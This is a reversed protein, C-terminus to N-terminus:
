SNMRWKSGNWNPKWSPSRRKPASNVHWRVDLARSEETRLVSSERKSALRVGASLLWKFANKELIEVDFGAEQFIEFSLKGQEYAQIFHEKFTDTYTIAKDSVQKVHPNNQLEKQQQTTFLQKAIRKLWREDKEKNYV